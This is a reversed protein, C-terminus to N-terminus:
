DNGYVDEKRLLYLWFLNYRMYLYFFVYKEYKIGTYKIWFVCLIAHYDMAKSKVKLEM